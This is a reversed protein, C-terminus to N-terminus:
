TRSHGTSLGEFFALANSGLTRTRYGGEQVVLTPRGLRGVMEGNARFDRAVLSWSGTPDLKATDLGLAVVLFTPAFARVAALARALVARYSPGDLDHLQALNLNHGQGPGDGREDAFGTFLPYAIRPHAHISVTLVDARSYFVDQQGNGHHYDLDLIAVTGHASLFHAAVAVNNFYCFGGFSAREAHHGPPRVLAYAVRGGALVHAAATLACDVARRAAVYANRNLPTFTDICYYGARVSLERPPRAKNRVPFVYPYLSEGEPLRECARRLYRVFDSAHVAHIHREGFAKPEVREFLGSPELKSLISRIRVPAEVYGRDRVQHIEHRDSVVLVIPELAQTAVQPRAHGPTVYQFGRMRVPEDVFSGVVRDVIRPPCRGEYKRELIARVVQRAFRRRLPEERDLSDYLLFLPHEDEPGFPDEYRTGAIPRVGYREYFRLVAACARRDNPDAATDEPECELFLGKAGLASAEQRVRQYLAGGIGGGTLRRATALYHLFCFSIEPEHYVLAFGQVKRRSSEAVHLISRFRQKFPNRLKEGVAEIEWARLLPFRASMIEGAQRLAERNAPLVDDHIRRIRFM